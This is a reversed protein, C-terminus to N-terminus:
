RNKIFNEKMKEYNELFLETLRILDRFFKANESDPDKKLAIISNLLKNREIMSNKVKEFLQFPDHRKIQFYRKRDGPRTEYEVIDKLQLIKLANSASSKSIKLEEIIEDFTFQEKDMVMLLALIRCSVPQLGEEELSMGLSEILKKQEQIREESTM